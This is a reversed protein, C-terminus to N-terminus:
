RMLILVLSASVCFEYDGAEAENSEAHALVTTIADEVVDSSSYDEDSSNRVEGHAGVKTESGNADLVLAAVWNYSSSVSGDVVDSVNIPEDGSREQKEIEQEGSSHWPWGDEPSDNYIFNHYDGAQHSCEDNRVVLPTVKDETAEREHVDDVLEDPLRADMGAGVSAINLSCEGNASRHSCEETLRM